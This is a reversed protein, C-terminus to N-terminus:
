ILGIERARFAAATRNPSGLAAIIAATHAKVTAPSLALERAIDKTSNGRAILQLVETQRDTLRILATDQMPLVSVARAALAALRPPCYRGGALVLRIAAEVVKGSSTKPIFGAIGLDFLALLMQDNENATVVILLADPAAAQVGQVGPLPAAGPMGLDCLILDPEHEALKFANPFDNALIIEADPWHMAVSGSLADRMMAHDDCILCKHM